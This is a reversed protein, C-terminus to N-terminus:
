ASPESAPAANITRMESLLKMESDGFTFRDLLAGPLQLAALTFSKTRLDEDLKAKLLDTKVRQYFGRSGETCEGWIESAGVGRAILSLYALMQQGVGSCGKPAMSGLFELCLNGSWLRRLHSFGVTRWIRGEPMQMLLAFGFENRPHQTARAEVDQPSRACEGRSSLYQWREGAIVAFELSDADNPNETQDARQQWEDVFSWDKPTTVWCLRAPVARPRDDAFKLNCLSVPKM